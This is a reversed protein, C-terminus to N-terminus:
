PIYRWELIYAEANQPYPITFSQLSELNVISSWYQTPAPYSYRQESIAIQSTSFPLTDYHGTTITMPLYHPPSFRTSGFMM